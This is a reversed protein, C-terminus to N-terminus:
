QLNRLKKKLRAKARTVCSSVTGEPIDMLDAIERYKKDHLVHLEVILREKPSLREVEKEIESVADEDPPAPLAAADEENLPEFRGAKRLHQAAANGSVIALWCSINKRNKVTSLGDETWIKTLVDQMIDDIDHRPLSIGYKRARNYVADRILGSYRGLLESWASADRSICREVLGSDDMVHAREM